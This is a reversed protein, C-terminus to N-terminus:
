KFLGFFKQFLNKKSSYVGEIAVDGMLIIDTAEFLITVNITENESAKVMYEKTEFGIYSFVLIDGVELKKPFEFSGDLATQTGIAAGKLVVNVGPLPLSQDDLVTGKITYNKAALVELQTTKSVQTQIEKNKTTTQQAELTGMTGLTCISIGFIAARHLWASRTPVISIPQKLQQQTFRGCLNEKKKKLHLMMEANSMGMFDIVEKKCSSCFGGGHIPKFNNFNKACPETISIKIANKM